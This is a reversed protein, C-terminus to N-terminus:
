LLKMAMTELLDERNLKLFLKPIDNMNLNPKCFTQHIGWYPRQPFLTLWLLVLSSLSKSQRMMMGHQQM